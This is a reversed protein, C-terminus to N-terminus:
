VHTLQLHVLHHDICMYIAFHNGLLTLQEHQMKKIQLEIIKQTHNKSFKVQSTFSLFFMM